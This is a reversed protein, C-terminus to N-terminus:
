NQDFDLNLMSPNLELVTTRRWVTSQLACDTRCTTCDFITRVIGAIRTCETVAASSAGGAAFLFERDVVDSRRLLAMPSASGCSNM